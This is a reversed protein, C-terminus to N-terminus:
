QHGFWKQLRVSVAGYIKSCAIRVWPSAVLSLTLYIPWLKPYACPFKSYIEPADGVLRGYVGDVLKFALFHLAMIDFSYRGIFCFFRSAPAWKEIWKAGYCVMYIGCFTVPYFLVPSIIEEAALEIVCDKIALMYVCFGTALLAVPWKLFRKLNVGYYALLYGVVLVPMLVLASHSHLILEKHMMCFKLGLAGMALGGVSIVWIRIKYFFRTACYMLVAFLVMGVLMMPVFWMAGGLLEGGFFLVNSYVHDFLNLISFPYGAPVLHFRLALNYTLSFFTLYFFWSPWLSQIRKQVFLYPAEAYKKDNYQLGAVFFFLALHYGYVFRIVDAVPFCHGIVISSIGIGKLIDFLQNRGNRAEIKTM